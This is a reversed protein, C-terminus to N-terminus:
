LNGVYDGIVQEFFEGRHGQDGHGMLHHDIGRHDRGPGLGTLPSAPGGMEM